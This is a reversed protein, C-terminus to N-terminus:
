EQRKRMQRAKLLRVAHEFEEYADLEAVEIDTLREIGNKELLWDLRAQMAPSLRFKQVFQLDVMDALLESLNDYVPRLQPASM